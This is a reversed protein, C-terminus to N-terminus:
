TIAGVRPGLWGLLRPMAVHLPESGDYVVCEGPTELFGTGGVVARGPASVAAAFASAGLHAVHRGPDLARAALRALRQSEPVQVLVQLIRSGRWMALRRLPAEHEGVRFNGELLLGRDPPIAEAARWLAEFAADSAGRSDDLGRRVRQAHQAHQAEKFADKALLALGLHAALAHALTTKGSAPLGTVLVIPEPPM